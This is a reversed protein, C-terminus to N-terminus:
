KRRKKLEEAVEEIEIGQSRLLVLLHFLLDASEEITRQKGEQKAARVVEEAEELVKAGCADVGGDLLSRTYSGNPNGSESRDRITEILSGLTELASEENGFCSVAGTHCAPGSPDAQILITDRDCDSRISIVRLTNGSEEGKKWLRKKSRSYFTVFGSTATQEFAQQNMYGLMLVKGTRADQIIAPLLGSQDKQWDLTSPDIM